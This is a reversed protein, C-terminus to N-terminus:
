LHFHRLLFWPKKLRSFNSAKELSLWIALARLFPPAEEFTFHRGELYFVGLRDVGSQEPLVLPFLM